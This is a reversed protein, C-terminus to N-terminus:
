DDILAAQSPPLFIKGRFGNAVTRAFVLLWATVLGTFLVVAVVEFLLAGSRNALASTGAVVTGVPFTFSWWTLAFPLKKRVERITILGAMVMWFMAFGWVPVGYLLGFGEIVDDLESPIDRVVASGLNNAAAISQGLPGLIIWLTPVLVAAPMPFFVLRGWILTIILISIILSIGFLANCLIVMSLQAQGFPLSDVLFSGANASVMPPVIPMLWGGFAADPKAQGRTFMVFPVIVASALGLITGLIWCFWSIALAAEYGIVDQGVLLTALGTTLIAMPPAGYFQSLIPDDIWRRAIDRYRTWHIFWAVSIGVLLVVTIAWFVLALLRLGPLQIPLTAATVSVIGTGMVSAYWNPGLHAYIHRKRELDRLFRREAPDKQGGNPM